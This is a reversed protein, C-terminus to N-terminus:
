NLHMCHDNSNSVIKVSVLIVPALKSVMQFHSAILIKILHISQHFVAVMSGKRRLDNRCAYSIPTKKREDITFTSFFLNLTM